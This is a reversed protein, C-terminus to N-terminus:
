EGNGNFFISLPSSNIWWRNGCMLMAEKVLRWPNVVAFEIPEVFDLACDYCQIWEDANQAFYMGIEAGTTMKILAMKHAEYKLRSDQHDIFDDSLLLRPLIPRVGYMGRGNRIYTTTHIGPNM